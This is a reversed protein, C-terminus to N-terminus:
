RDGRVEHLAREFANTGQADYGVLVIREVSGPNEAFKTVGNIIARAAEESTLGGVGAGIAPFAIERIGREAALRMAHEVSSQVNELTARGGPPMGACHIVYRARLRGGSTIVAEGPRIPGQAMAEKEIEPGGRSKIAGAVGSGMWLDSNAANVIAETDLESIDGSEVQITIRGIQLEM